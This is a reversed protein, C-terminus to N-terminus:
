GYDEEWKSPLLVATLQASVEILFCVVENLFCLSDKRGHFNADFAVDAEDSDFDLSCFM